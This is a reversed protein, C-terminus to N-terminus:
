GKGLTIEAAVEETSGFMVKYPIRGPNEAAMKLFVNWPQVNITRKRAKLIQPLEIEAWALEHFFTSFRHGSHRAYALATKARDPDKLNRDRWKVAVDLDGLKDKTGLFSGFVVVTEIIRIKASDFNYQEVRKLLGALADEATKRSVKSAASARVLAGAKETFKYLGDADQAEVYGQAVLESARFSIGYVHCTSHIEIGRWWAKSFVVFRCSQFAPYRM